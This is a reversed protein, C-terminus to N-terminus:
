KHLPSNGKENENKIAFSIKRSFDKRSQQREGVLPTWQIASSFTLFLFLFVFM